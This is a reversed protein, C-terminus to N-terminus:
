RVIIIFFTMNRQLHEGGKLSLYERQLGELFEKINQANQVRGEGGVLGTLLVNAAQELFM